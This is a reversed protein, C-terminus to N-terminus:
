GLYDRLHAQVIERDASVRRLRGGAACSFSDSSIELLGIGQRPLIERRRQDYLARQLGRHVGSVTLRDPKDFHPTPRRHQIEHYEIVLALSPYYADVPLMRGVGNRGPDGRLFDFRHERRATLGLLDDCLDIIYAQDGRAV